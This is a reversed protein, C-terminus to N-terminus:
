FHHDAVELNINDMSTLLNAQHVTKPLEHSFFYRSCILKSEYFAEKSDDGCGRSVGAALEMELWRWAILTTGMMNLYEHSNCLMSDLNGANGAGMLALSTSQLREVAEKLANAHAVATEGDKGNILVCMEHTRVVSCMMEDVIIDLGKGKQATIKRGLLDLSQIGNTGEHIMNLRNDRYIQEVDYDRTYGYGGHIQIAWKNAELCWESPWSKIVPTLVELLIRREMQMNEDLDKLTEDHILDNILSGFMALSLAGEVYAKQVLLMRRVDAHQVIPVQPSSPDRLTAPRGQRRERAYNLSRVYGAHGLACAGFGIAIRAENMMLFMTSLGEGVGGLLEGVCEEGGEGFNMVCNTTGRYGMKHNLGALTVGNSAGLSGDDLVRRKPVIFLSIGKVGPLVEHSGDPQPLAVKALVMHVINESLDHEGASIWMKSGTISYLGDARLIARTTIDGLSSGAQTESLNMTGFFRGELMPILYKAHQQPSGVARLMNGAAITLFSYATTGPNVATFPFTLASSVCSPLQLGGFEIDAHASDCTM